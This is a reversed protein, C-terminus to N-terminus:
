QVKGLVVRAELIAERIDGGPNFGYGGCVGCADAESGPEVGSEDCHECPYMQENVMRLARLLESCLQKNM